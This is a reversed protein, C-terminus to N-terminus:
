PGPNIIQDRGIFDGGGTDVDGAIYAGGQTNIEQYVVFFRQGTAGTFGQSALLERAREPDLRGAMLAPLGFVANPFRPRVEDFDTVVVGRHAGSVYVQELWTVAQEVSQKRAPDFAAFTAYSDQIGEFQGVFSVAVNILYGTVEARPQPLVEVEDVHLYLLPVDRREDFFTVADTPVYRMEGRLVVPVAGEDLMRAKLPGYFRRPILVPFGEHCVGNSSATMFYAPEGAIERPRLRVAGIGGKIMNAKGVPNFYTKGDSALEKYREALQRMQFAEATHFLGPSLPFWEFLHFHELTVRRTDFLQEAIFLQWAEANSTVHQSLDTQPTTHRNVMPLHALDTQHEVLQAFGDRGLQQCFQPLQGLRDPEAPRAMGGGSGGGGM